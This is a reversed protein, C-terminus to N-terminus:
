YFLMTANKQHKDVKKFTMRYDTLLCQTLSLYETVRNYCKLQGITVTSMLTSTVPAKHYMTDYMPSQFPSIWLFLLWHLEDILM